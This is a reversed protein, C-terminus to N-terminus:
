LLWRRWCKGCGESEGDEGEKAMWGLMMGGAVRCLTLFVYRQGPQGPTPIDHWGGSWGGLTIGLTRPMEEFVRGVM